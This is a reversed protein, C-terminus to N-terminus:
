IMPKANSSINGAIHCYIATSHYADALGRFVSLTKQPFSPEPPFGRKDVFPTKRGIGRRKEGFVRPTEM